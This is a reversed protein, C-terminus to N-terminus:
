SLQPPQWIDGSRQTVSLKPYTTEQKRVITSVQFIVLDMQCVMPTACCNCTCFPSCESCDNHSTSSQSVPALQARDVEKMEACPLSTLLLIYMSFLLALLRM